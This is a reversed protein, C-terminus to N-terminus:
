TCPPGGDNTATSATALAALLAAPDDGILGDVGLAALDVAETPDNVTWVNVALGQRRWERVRAPSCLTRQPHLAVAGTVHCVGPAVFTRALRQGDHVLFARPVRPLAVAVRALLEPDFTSFLVQDAIRSRGTLLRGVGAVLAAKDHTDHKLEVNVAAGRTAAWDLVDALRPVRTGQALEVAALEAATLDKAHRADRGETVRALDPDHLVIVEGDASTRVDLEVGDAGDDMGRAFAALTNEPAHARAGRHAWVRPRQLPRRAVRM